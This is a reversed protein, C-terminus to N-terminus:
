FKKLLKSIDLNIRKQSFDKIATEYAKNIMTDIEFERKQYDIIKVILDNFNVAEIYHIDKNLNCKTIAGKIAFIANKSLAAEAIKLKFGGGLVEPIVAIKAKAYYASVSEVRGTMFVGKYNSNIKNVLLPDANGVITLHINNAYLDKFNKSNLFSLMNETKPGWLFSGVLIIENINKKNKSILDDIEFVPRIIYTKLHKFNVDYYDQDYESITTILDFHHLWKKEYLKTKIADQWYILKDVISKSNKANNLSLLYEANHSIYILKSEHCMTLITELTFVMKFHNVFIYDYENKLLKSKLISSFLKSKRNVIMGPLLSLIIKLKSPTKFKVYQINLSKESLTNEHSKDIVENSDYCLVDIKYKLDLLTFLFNSTYIRDGNDKSLPNEYTIFLINKSNM